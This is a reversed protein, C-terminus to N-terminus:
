PLSFLLTYDDALISIRIGTDDRWLTSIGQAVHNRHLLAKVAKLNLLTNIIQHFVNIANFSVDSFIVSNKDWMFGFLDDCDCRSISSFPTPGV